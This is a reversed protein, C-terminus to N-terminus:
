PAARTPLIVTGDASFIGVALPAVSAPGWVPSWVGGRAADELYALRTPPTYRGLMLSDGTSLLIVMLTAASDPDSVLTLTAICRESWGGPVHCRTAFSAADTSGSFTGDLSRGAETDRVLTRLLRAGNVRETAAFDAAAIRAAHDALLGSVARAGGITIVGLVLAVMVEILTFGHRHQLTSRDASRM